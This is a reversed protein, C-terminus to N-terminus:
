GDKDFDLKELQLLYQTLRTMKEEGLCREMQEQAQQWCAKAQRQKKQGSETLYIRSKRSGPCAADKVWGAAYLNKLNRVLTTRELRVQRSLEAVSCPEIKKISSLLSYQSVSIGSVAMARDYYDTVANAARRLSICHCDSSTIEKKKDM